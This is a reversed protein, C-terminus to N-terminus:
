DRANGGGVFRPLEEIGVLVDRPKSGDPPGLIGAAHLQDIVRAARGYGIKLRRQLLSTSGGQNQICVEAADFFLKDREGSASEEDGADQGAALAERKRVMELIDEEDDAQAADIAAALDRAEASTGNKRDRYWDMLRETEESSLYAGQLRSPESKGPPIFLMDGNGLLTEAGMGDLITRSDIQSAVRFAIRSPFNAKILGTIVNVSPRQTAIILHIGIARAKQALRAIPTEVEGQVTMMLDAMEDIIVVIYPLAGKTYTRDEFAVEPNRPKLLPVGDRVRKNFDQLNRCGNAALLEYREEMTMIAWKLVSAADKSDTIVKHRMHPLDNYVSLEVMKPDVMLFRLTEPTHRYILSTIITNVAVSKGAGTAGAILLHPMKALDAIVPKGELDKGLAIPLAAKAHDFEPHDVLERFVVMERTANPVEIGVAGKGPIPAVIRISPARMALALDDSLSAIQRVKVGAAPEYEFQTVTPGVTRGTIRGDIKFTRLVEELRQAAADLEKRGVEANRPPAESLIAKPPREAMTEATAADAAQMEAVLKGVAAADTDAKADAKTRKGRRAEEAPVVPEPAAPTLARKALVPDLAPMEEPAPELAVAIDEVIAAARSRRKRPAVEGDIAAVDATDDAESAAAAPRGALLARVPNWALTGITLACLAFAMLLWAGFAGFGTVAYFAVFGGWVGVALNSDRGVGLALAVVVPTLLACGGLFLLWNRDDRASLRGFRRLAHVFPAFPLFLAGTWGLITLLPTAVLSGIAGFPGRVADTGDGASIASWAAALLVGGLFIALALWALAGVEDRLAARRQARLLDRPNPEPAVEVAARKRAGRATTVEPEDPGAGFLARM